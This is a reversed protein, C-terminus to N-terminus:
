SYDQFHEGMFRTTLNWWDPRSTLICNMKVKYFNFFKKGEKGFNWNKSVPTSMLKVRQTPLGTIFLWCAKRQICIFGILLCDALM